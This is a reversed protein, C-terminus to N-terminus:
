KGEMLNALERLMTPLDKTKFVIAADLEDLVQNYSMGVYNTDCDADYQGAYEIGIWSNDKEYPKIVLLTDTDSSVIYQANIEDHKIQYAM